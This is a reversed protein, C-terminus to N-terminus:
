NLRVYSRARYVARLGLFTLISACATFYTLSYHSVIVEGFYGARFVEYCHVLPHWLIAKQAWTPLWDVFFFCGSIPINLYQMPQVFREAVEYRETVCALIMGFASGIWAMMLWGLFILDLRHLGDIFGLLSLTSYVVLLATTTGIIEIAQRAFVLDLLTIQRHFLMGSSNRFMGCVPGTLHRWLTLPMYGTLVIEVVKVGKSEHGMVSWVFMVGITLIMPELIVWAFGINDRGYRMMIDRVMLAQITRFQNRWGRFLRTHETEQV